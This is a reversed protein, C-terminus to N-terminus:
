RAGVSVLKVGVEPRLPTVTVRVPVFKMPALLTVTLPTVAVVEFPKAVHLMEVGSPKPVFPMVAM